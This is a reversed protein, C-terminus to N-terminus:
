GVVQETDPSFLHPNQWLQQQEWHLLSFILFDSWISPFYLFGPCFHFLLAPFLCHWTNCSLCLLNCVLTSRSVPAYKLFPCHPKKVRVCEAVGEEAARASRLDWWGEQGLFTELSSPQNKRHQEEDKGMEAAEDWPGWADRKKPRRVAGQNGPDDRVELIEGGDFIKLKLIM